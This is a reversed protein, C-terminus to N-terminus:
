MQRSWILWGFWRARWARSTKSRRLVSPAITLAVPLTPMWYSEAHDMLADANRLRQDHTVAESMGPISVTELWEFCGLKSDLACLRNFVTGRVLAEADLSRRSSRLARRIADGGWISGYHM